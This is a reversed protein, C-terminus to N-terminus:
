VYNIRRCRYRGRRIKGAGYGIIKKFVETLLPTAAKEILLGALVGALPGAFPFLGSIQGKGLYWVGKKVYNTKRMVRARRM